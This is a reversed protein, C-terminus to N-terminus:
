SAKPWDVFLTLAEGPALPKPMSVVIQGPASETITAQGTNTGSKGTSASLRTSKAGGPLFVRAAASEIPLANRGTVNWALQYGAPLDAVAGAVKYTITYLHNGTGLKVDPKGIRIEISNKNETVSVGDAYGNRAVVVDTVKLSVPKGSADHYGTPLTRVIGHVIEKGASHVGISEVVTMTGAADITLDAKFALIREPESEAAAPVAALLVALLAAFFGPLTRTM